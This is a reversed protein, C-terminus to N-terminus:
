MDPLDLSQVCAAYLLEDEKSILIKLGDVLMEKSLVCNPLAVSSSCPAFISPPFLYLTLYVYNTLTNFLQKKFHFPPVFPLSPPTHTCTRFLKLM